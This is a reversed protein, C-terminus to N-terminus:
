KLRPSKRTDFIAPLNRTYPIAFLLRVLSAGNLTDFKFASRGFPRKELPVVRGM